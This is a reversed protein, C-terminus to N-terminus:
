RGVPQDDAGARETRGEQQEAVPRGEGAEARGEAGPEGAVAVQQGEQQVAPAHSPVVRHGRSRSGSNPGTMVLAMRMGSVSSPARARDPAAEVDLVAAVRGEEVPDHLRRVRRAHGGADARNAAGGPRPAGAPMARDLMLSLMEPSSPPPAAEAAVIGTRAMPRSMGFPVNRSRSPLRSSSQAM